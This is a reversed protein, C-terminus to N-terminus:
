DNNMAKFEQLTPLNQDRISISSISMATTDIVSDFRVGTDFEPNHVSTTAYFVISDQLAFFAHAVGPPV